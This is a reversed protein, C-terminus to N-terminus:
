DAKMDALAADFVDSDDGPVVSVELVDPDRGSGSRSLQQYRERFNGAVNDLEGSMVSRIIFIATFLNWFVLYYAWSLNLTSASAAVFLALAVIVPVVVFFLVARRRTCVFHPLKKLCMTITRGRVSRKPRRFISSFAMLAIVGLVLGCQLLTLIILTDSHITSHSNDEALLTVAELRPDDSQILSASMDSFAKLQKDLPSSALQVLTQPAGFLEFAGAINPSVYSSWTKSLAPNQELLGRGNDFMKQAVRFVLNKSSRTVDDFSMSHTGAVTAFHTEALVPEVALCVLLCVVVRGVM